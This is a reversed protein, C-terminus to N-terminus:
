ILLQGDLINFNTLSDLAIKVNYGFKNRGIDWSLLLLLTPHTQLAGRYLLVQIYYKSDPMDIHIKWM